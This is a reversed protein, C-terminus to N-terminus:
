VVDAFSSESRRFFYLGTVLILLVGPISLFSMLRPPDTGLAAWRVGTTVLQMPNLELLISLVGHPVLQKSYVVPTMFFWFLMAFPILHQVDRYRVNIAALWLGIAFATLTALPYFAPILLIRWSPTPGYFLVMVVVIATALTLDVIPSILSSFPLVLRPFAIKQLLGPNGVLSMSVGNMSNAFYQWPVLAAFIFVGYPLDNEAKLKAIYGFVLAYLAMQALPQMVAWLGGLFMQKYRVLVDRMGLFWILERHAWIQRLQLEPWGKPPRNISAGPMSRLADRDAESARADGVQFTTQEVRADLPTELKM